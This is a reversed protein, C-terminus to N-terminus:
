KKGEILISDCMPNNHKSIILTSTKNDFKGIDVSVSNNNTLHRKLENGSMDSITIDVGDAGECTNKISTFELSKVGDLNWVITTPRNEGPHAYIRGDSEIEFRGWVDGLSIKGATFPVLLPTDYVGKWQPYSIYYKSIFSSVEENTFPRTKKYIYATVGNDLQYGTGIRKFAKGIGDGHLLENAPITIVQQGSAELHTQIPDAVIFYESILSQINLGDRLDVQSAGVIFKNLKQNSLTDLMNDNLINSSSLVTLKDKENMISQIDSILKLYNDYNDLRMPLYKKPLDSDIWKRDSDFLSVKNIYVCACSILVALILKCIDNKMSFFLSQLALTSAILVWLAFPLCHQVGPSQTKTFIFFSFFLNFSSFIVLYDKKDKKGFVSFCLSAFFIPLIYLGIDHIVNHLSTALSSQYASYIFSYDTSAIRKILNFQLLLSVLISTMGSFFFFITIRKIKNISHKGEKHFYYNLVPLSIYLSLVSYAYWRRLLFPALLVLGYFIAKKINLKLSFDNKNSFYVAYIIFAIGCIDPYGRLIPAWFPVFTIPLILSVAKWILSKRNQTQNILCSFLISVPILYVLALSLIYSIRSGGGIVYFFSTLAVPILNYDDNRVSYLLESLARYPSTSISEGFQQWFRWYGNFDWFYINQERHVYSTSIYIVFLLSLVLLIFNIAKSSFKM